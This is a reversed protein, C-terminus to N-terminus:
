LVANKMSVVEGRSVLTGFVGDTTINCLQLNAIALFGQFMQSKRMKPRRQRGIYDAFRRAIDSQKRGAEFDIATLDSAKPM